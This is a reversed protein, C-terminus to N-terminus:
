YGEPAYAHTRNVDEELSPPMDPDVDPPEMAEPQEEKAARAGGPKRIRKPAKAPTEASADKAAAPTKAKAQSSAKETAAPNRRPKPELTKPDFELEDNEVRRPVFAPITKPIEVYNFNFRAVHNGHKLFAHKDEM